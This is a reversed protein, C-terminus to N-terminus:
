ILIGGVLILIASFLELLVGIKGAVPMVTYAKPATLLVLVTLTLGALMIFPQSLPNETGLELTVGLAVLGAFVVVLNRALWMSTLLDTGAEAARKVMNPTLYVAALGWVIAILSGALVLYDDVINIM